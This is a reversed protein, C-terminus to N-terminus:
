KEKKIQILVMESRGATRFPFGWAGYGSSVISHYNGNKYYGYQMMFNLPFIQGAHTHGSLHLNM